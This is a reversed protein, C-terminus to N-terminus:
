ARVGLLELAMRVAVVMSDILLVTYVVMVVTLAIKWRRTFGPSRWLLPLGVPGLVFFLLVVVAWPRYYWHPPSPPATGAERAPV